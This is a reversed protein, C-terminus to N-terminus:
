TRGDATAKEIMAKEDVSLDDRELVEDKSFLRADFQENVFDDMMKLSFDDEVARDDHYTCKFSNIQM